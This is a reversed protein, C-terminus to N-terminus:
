ILRGGEIKGTYQLVGDRFAGGPMTYIKLTAAYDKFRWLKLRKIVGRLTKLDHFFAGNGSGLIPNNGRDFTQIYWLM